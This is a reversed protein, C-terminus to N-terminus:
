NEFFHTIWFINLLVAKYVPICGLMPFMPDSPRTHPPHQSSHSPPRDQSLRHQSNWCEWSDASSMQNWVRLCSSLSGRLQERQDRNKLCTDPAWLPLWEGLTRCSPTASLSPWPSARFGQWPGVGHQRATAAWGARGWGRMASFVGKRRGVPHSGPLFLWCGEVRFGAFCWRPGVAERLRHGPPTGQASKKKLQPM